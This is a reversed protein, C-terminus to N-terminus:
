IGGGGGMFSRVVGGRWVPNHRGIHFGRGGRKHISDETMIASETSFAKPVTSLGSREGSAGRWFSFYIWYESYGPLLIKKREGGRESFPSYKAHANSGRRVLRSLGKGPTAGQNKTSSPLTTELSFQTDPSNL